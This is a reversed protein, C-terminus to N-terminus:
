GGIPGRRRRPRREFEDSRGLVYALAVGVVVLPWGVPMALGLGLFLVIAGIVAARMM